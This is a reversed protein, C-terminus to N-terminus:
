GPRVQQPSTCTTDPIIRRPPIGANGCEDFLNSSFALPTNQKAVATIGEM